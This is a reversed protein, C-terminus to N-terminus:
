SKYVLYIIDYNRCGFDSLSTINKVFRLQTLQIKREDYEEPVRGKNEVRWTTTQRHVVWTQVMRQGTVEIGADHFTHLNCEVARLVSYNKMVFYIMIAMLVLLGPM